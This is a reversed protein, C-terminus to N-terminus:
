FVVSILVTDVYDGPPATQADLLEVRGFIQTTVLTNMGQGTDTVDSTGAGGTGDDWITGYTNDTYLNYALTNGGVQMTRATEDGSVGDSIQISVPTNLTCRWAINAQQDFPGTAVDLTSLDFQLIDDTGPQDIVCVPPVTAQVSLNASTGQAFAQGAFLLACVALARSLNTMLNIKSM